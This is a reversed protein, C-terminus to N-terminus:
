DLEKSLREVGDDVDDVVDLEDNVVGSDDVALVLVESAGDVTRM